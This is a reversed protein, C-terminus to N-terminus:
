PLKQLGNPKYTKLFQQREEYSVSIGFSINIQIKQILFGLQRDVNGISLIWLLPGICVKVICLNRAKITQMHVSDVQVNWALSSGRFTITSSEYHLWSYLTQFFQISFWRIIFNPLMPLIFPLTLGKIKTHSRNMEYKCLPLFLVLHNLILIYSRATIKYFPWKSAM